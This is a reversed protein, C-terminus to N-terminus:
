RLGILPWWVTVVILLLVCQVFTLILGLRFLDKSNFYGYSMGVILVASQFAFIKGGAGFTWIMGILLPDM